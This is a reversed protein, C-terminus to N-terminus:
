LLYVYINAIRESMTEYYIQKFYDGVDRSKLVECIKTVINSLGVIDCNKYQLKSGQKLNLCKEINVCIYYNNNTKNPRYEYNSNFKPNRENIKIKYFPQNINSVNGQKYEHKFM